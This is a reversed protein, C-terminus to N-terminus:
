YTRGDHRGDADDVRATPSASRLARRPATRRVAGAGALARWEVWGATRARLRGLDPRPRLARADPGRHVEADGARSRSLRHRPRPRAPQRRHKRSVDACRRASRRHGRSQGARERTDLHRGRFLLDHRRVAGGERGDARRAWSPAGHDGGFVRGGGIRRRPCRLRTATGGKGRRKIAVSGFVMGCGSVRRGQGLAFRM